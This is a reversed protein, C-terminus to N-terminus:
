DAFKLMGFCDPQHFDPNKTNVPNWTLYHPRTLKDGCKYFNARMTKGKFDSLSHKFFAKKPIATIITWSFKGQRESFPETGCTSKRRIDTIVKDSGMARGQRGTGSGLLCTGIANFEFNYYIGDEEPAVFFEVCSDEYVMQNSASKEAKIYEETIYYRIFIEDDSFAINFHVEPRYSYASWNLIDVPEGPGYEDLRLSVEDLEPYPKKFMEKKVELIKM